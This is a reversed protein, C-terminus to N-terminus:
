PEVRVRVRVPPSGREGFWAVGEQVLDIELVYEGPQGPATITLQLEAEDGPHLDYPLVARGDDAVVDRGNGALWRSGLHVEYPGDHSGRRPWPVDSANRIEVRVTATQGIRLTRPANAVGVNARFAGGPLPASSPPVGAKARYLYISDGFLAEPARGRYEAFLNRRQQQAAPDGSGGAGPVTSGNLFSAGIAIYPTEPPRAAPPAAADLYEVGYHELTGWGGSLAARVSTEGRARLYHALDRVDDGWEINSDSLYWWRPHQRALQNMYPMYDPYARAAELGMWCFALAVALTALSPVAAVGAARARRPKDRRPFSRLLRDLSAGGLIFLFPFAPLVHRIGINIHSTMALALYAAFPVLLALWRGERKGALRWVAWGLAAVSLLLFPLTTKLAFAVPFYYWWGQTSYMGLLAASHGDQNHMAVTYIGFLFYTPVVTSLAQFGSLIERSRAPSQEAVWAVDSAELPQDRFGYAGNIVVFVVLAVVVAHAAIHRRRGGRRPALWLLALLATVLVPALVLLSVKTVFAAGGALGLLIARRPTPAAAYAHLAVFAALYALAAPVDTQVVRGHALVTPEVSFLAVALVAARPGFLRRAYAFITAGLALTLAVMPVRAWFAIAEFRAANAEWFAEAYNLTRKSPNPAPVAPPEDLGLGLLPLAAWLKALPPHENNPRFDGAVLYSYGAPIHVVEDNTISKRVTVTLLNVGMVLLLGVCLVEALRGAIARRGAVLLPPPGAKRWQGKTTRPWAIM